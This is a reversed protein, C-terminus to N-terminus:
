PMVIKHSRTIYIDTQYNELETDYKSRNPGCVRNPVSAQLYTIFLCNYLCNNWNYNM